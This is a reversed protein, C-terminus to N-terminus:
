TQSTKKKKKSFFPFLVILYSLVHMSDTLSMFASYGFLIVLTEEFEKGGLFKLERSKKIKEYFNTFLHFFM